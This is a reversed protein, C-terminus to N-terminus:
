EPRQSDGHKFTTLRLRHRLIAVATKSVPTSALSELKERPALPAAFACYLWKLSKRPERIMAAAKLCQWAGSLMRGHAIDKIGVDGEYEAALRQNLKLADAGKVLKAIERRWRRIAPRMLRPNACTSAPHVRYFALSGEIKIQRFRKGIAACRVWFDWDECIKLRENFLGVDEIVGRRILGCHIPFPARLLALLADRESGSISPLWTLEEGGRIIRSRGGSEVSTFSMAGGYVIDVDRRRRLFEIQKELKREEILDDADLFQLFAGRSHKIGTNRAASVGRHEQHIYRVRADREAYSMVVARTDDTSGDDVVVCEWNRWTQALVSDLSQCIFRGYNFSPAIITVLPLGDESM